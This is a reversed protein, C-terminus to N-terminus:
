QKNTQFKSIIANWILVSCGALAISIFLYNMGISYDTAKGTITKNLETVFSPIFDSLVNNIISENWILSYAIIFTLLYDAFFPWLFIDKIWEFGSLRHAQLYNIVLNKARFHTAIIFGTLLPFTLIAHGMLWTLTINSQSHYGILKMWKFGSILIVIPPVILLIFIIILFIMSGYNFDSLLHKWSVRSLMGFLIAIFTSILAAILTLLMPFLLQGFQSNFNGSQKWIVMIIPLVTFFILAAFVTNSFLHSLKIRTDLYLRKSVLMLKYFLLKCALTLLLAIISIVMVLLGIQSIHNFASDPGLLSDSQYIRNLWHNIMETGTGRSARFIFEIKAEEYFCFIFCLVYFLLCLNRQQPLIIDKVKEFSNLQIVKAYDWMRPSILKMNLWFLYIFLTGFQWCEMFGVATLKTFENKFLFTNDILLLKWIFSSSVNGLIVPILLLSLFKSKVSFIDIKNLCISLVLSLVVTALSVVTAFLCSRMLSAGFGEQDNNFANVSFISHDLTKFFPLLYVLIFFIMGILGLRVPNIGGKTIIM